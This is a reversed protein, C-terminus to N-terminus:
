GAPAMEPERGDSRAYITIGEREVREILANAKQRLREYEEPTYVLLDVGLGLRFLPLHQRGRELFPLSTAEVLVLDIDSLADADGRAFSGFLVAREVSTGRLYARIRDRIEDLSLRPPGGVIEVDSM